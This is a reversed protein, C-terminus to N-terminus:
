GKLNKIKELIYGMGIGITILIGGIIGIDSM